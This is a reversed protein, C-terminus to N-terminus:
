GRTHQRNNCTLKQPVKFSQIIILKDSTLLHWGQVVDDHLARLGEKGVTESVADWSHDLEETVVGGLKLHQGLHKGPVLDVDNVALLHDGIREGLDLLDLLEEVDLGKERFFM